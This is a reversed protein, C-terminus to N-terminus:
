HRKWTHKGKVPPKLISQLLRQKTTLPPTPLKGYKVAALTLAILQKTRQEKESKM